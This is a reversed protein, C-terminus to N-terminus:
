GSLISPDDVGPDRAGSQVAGGVASVRHSPRFRGLDVLLRPVQSRNLQQKSVCLEFAGDAIEADLNVVREANGLLDLRFFLTATIVPPM